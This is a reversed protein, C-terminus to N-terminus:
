IIIDELSEWPYDADSEHERLGVVLDDALAKGAFLWIQHAEPYGEINRFQTKLKGVTDGEKAELQVLREVDVGDARDVIKLILQWNRLAEAAPLTDQHGNGIGEDQAVRAPYAILLTPLADGTGEYLLASEPQQEAQEAHQRARFRLFWERLFIPVAALNHGYTAAPATSGSARQLPLWQHLLRAASIM